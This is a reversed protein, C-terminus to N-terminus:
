LLRQDIYFCTVKVARDIMLLEKKVSCTDSAVKARHINCLKLSCIKLVGGSATRQLHKAFYTNNFTECVEWSLM